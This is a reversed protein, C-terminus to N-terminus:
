VDCRRIEATGVRMMAHTRQSPCRTLMVYLDRYSLVGALDNGPAPLVFPSSGTAIVLKDYSEIIGHDSTVTKTVAYRDQAAELLHELMRGPAM